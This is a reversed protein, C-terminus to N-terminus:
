CVPDVLGRLTWHDRLPVQGDLIAEATSPQSRRAPVRPSLLRRLTAGDNGAGTAKGAFTTNPDWGVVTFVFVGGAPLGSGGSFTVQKNRSSFRCRSFYALALCTFPPLQPSPAITFTLSTWTFDTGNSFLCLPLEIGLVVCPSGGLLSLPSTGTPSLISFTGGLPFSSSSARMVDDDGAIIIIPDRAGASSARVQTCFLLVAIASFTASRFM